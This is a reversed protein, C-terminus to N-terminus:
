RRLTSPPGGARRPDYYRKERVTARPLGLNGDAPNLDNLEVGEASACLRVYGRVINEDFQHLGKRFGPRLITGHAKNRLKTLIASFQKNGLATTGTLGCLAVYSDFADVAKRELSWSDAAAWVALKSHVSRGRTALDYPKKIVEEADRVAAAIAQSLHELTVESAYKDTYIAYLLKEVLLHVYYPFGNAISAIRFRTTRMPEAEWDLGFRSLADDIIDLADQYDLRELPVQALQRFSSPHYGLIGDLDKGVGTFIITIRAARDGLLKVLEAFQAKIDDTPLRDMEDIVVVRVAAEQEDDLSSLIEAATSVSLTPLAGYSESQSKSFSLYHTLGWGIKKEVAALKTRDFVEIIQRILEDFTSDSACGIQKFHESKSVAAKAATKALSTKGVGREGFVFVHRGAAYIAQEVTELQAERGKLHATSDIPRSHSAVTGLAEAFDKKSLNHIMGIM